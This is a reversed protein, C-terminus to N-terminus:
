NSLRPGLVLRFGCILKMLLPSATILKWSIVGCALIGYGLLLIFILWSAVGADTQCRLKDDQSKFWERLPGHRREM